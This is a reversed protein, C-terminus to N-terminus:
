VKREDLIKIFIILSKKLEPVLKLVFLFLPLM